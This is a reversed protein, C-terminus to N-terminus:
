DDMGTRTELLTTFVHQLLRPRQGILDFLDDGELQLLAGAETSVLRYGLRVRAALTEFLGVADGAQAHGVEVATETERISISGALM